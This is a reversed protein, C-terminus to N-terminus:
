LKIQHHITFLSLFTHPSALHSFSACPLFRSVFRHWGCQGAAYQQSICLLCMASFHPHPCKFQMMNQQFLCPWSQHSQCCANSENNLMIPLKLFKVTCTARAMFICVKAIKILLQITHIEDGCEPRPTIYPAVVCLVM